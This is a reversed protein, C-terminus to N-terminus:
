CFVDYGEVPASIWWGADAPVGSWFVNDCTGGSDRSHDSISARSVGAARPVAGACITSMVPMPRFGRIAKPWATAGRGRYVAARVKIMGGTGCLM